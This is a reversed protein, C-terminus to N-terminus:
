SGPDSAPEVPSVEEIQDGALGQLFDSVSIGLEKQFTREAELLVITRTLQDRLSSPDEPNGPEQSLGLSADRLRALTEVLRQAQEPPLRRGLRRQVELQLAGAV